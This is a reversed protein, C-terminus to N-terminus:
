NLYKIRHDSKLMGYSTLLIWGLYAAIPLKETIGVFTPMSLLAFIGTLFGISLLVASTLFTLPSLWQLNKSHYFTYGLLFLASSTYFAMVLLVSIHTMGADSESIGRPDMPFQVLLLGLIGSILLYLGGVKGYKNNLRLILVSAFLILYFNYTQYIPITFAKLPTFPSILFSIEVLLFTNISQFLGGFFLLCIFTLVTIGGFTAILLNETKRM